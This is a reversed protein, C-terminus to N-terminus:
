SVKKMADAISASAANLDAVISAKDIPQNNKLEAELSAIQAQDANFKAQLQAILADDAKIQAQMSDLGAASKVVDSDLFELFCPGGGPGRLNLKNQPDYFIVGSEFVQYVVNPISYNEASVPLRPAGQIQRYYALIGFAVTLNKSPCLWHDNDVQKFYAAAWPDTIQLPM